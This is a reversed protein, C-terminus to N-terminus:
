AGIESMGAKPLEYAKYTTRLATEIRFPYRIGLKVESDRGFSTM